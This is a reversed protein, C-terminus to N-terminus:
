WPLLKSPIVVPEQDLWPAWERAKKMQFRSILDPIVNSKGSVHQAGIIIDHLMSIVVMKRVLKM